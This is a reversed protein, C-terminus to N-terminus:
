RTKFSACLLTLKDNAEHIMRQSEKNFHFFLYHLINALNQQKQKFVSDKLAVSIQIFINICASHLFLFSSKDLNIIVTKFCNIWHVIHEKYLKKERRGFATPRIMFDSM